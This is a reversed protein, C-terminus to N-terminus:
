CLFVCVARELTSCHTFCFCKGGKLTAKEEVNQLHLSKLLRACFSRCANAPDKQSQAYHIARHWVLKDNVLDIVLSDCIMDHLGISPM